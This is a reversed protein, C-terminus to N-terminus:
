KTDGCIGGGNMFVRFLVFGDHSFGIILGEHGVHCIFCGTTPTATTTPAATTTPPAATTTPAPAPTNLIPTTTTPAVTTKPAPPSTVTLALKMNGFECHGTVKCTFYVTGAAPAKYTYENVSTSALERAQDFDCENYAVKNPMLWVDHNDSWKFIVDTGPAVTQAQEASTM